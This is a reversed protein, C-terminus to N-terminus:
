LCSGSVLSASGRPSPPCRPLAAAFSLALFACAQRVSRAQGRPAGAVSGCAGLPLQGKAPCPKAGQGPWLSVLPPMARTTAAELSGCHALFESKLTVLSLSNFFLLQQPLVEILRPPSSGLPLASPWSPAVPEGSLANSLSRAAEGRCPRLVNASAAAFLVSTVFAEEM